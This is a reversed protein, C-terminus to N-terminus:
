MVWRLNYRSECTPSRIAFALNGNGVQGELTANGASARVTGDRGILAVFNQRAGSSYVLRNDGITIIGPRGAPCDPGTASVLEATGKYTGEVLPFPVTANAGPGARWARERDEWATPGCATLLTAIALTTLTAVASPRPV